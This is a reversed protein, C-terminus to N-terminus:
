RGDDAEELDRDIEQKFEWDEVTYVVASVDRDTDMRIKTYEDAAMNAITESPVRVGREEGDEKVLLVHEEGDSLVERAALLNNRPISVGGSGLFIPVREDVDDAEPNASTPEYCIVWFRHTRSGDEVLETKICFRHDDDELAALGTDIFRFDWPGRDLQKFDYWHPADPGYNTGDWEDESMTPWM